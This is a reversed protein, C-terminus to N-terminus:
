LLESAILQVKLTKMKMAIFARAKEIGGVLTCYLGEQNIDSHASEILNSTTDGAQWIIKPIHSREWCLAEFAFGSHIKDQIWDILIKHTLTRIKDIHLGVALGKGPKGRLEAISQLTSDWNNHVTCILSHM